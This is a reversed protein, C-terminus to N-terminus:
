QRALAASPAFSFTLQNNSFGAAVARLDAIIPAADTSRAAGPQVLM